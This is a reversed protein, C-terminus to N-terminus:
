KKFTKNYYDEGTLWYEFNSTGKSKKLKDGHADIIHQKEMDKAIEFLDESKYIDYRVKLEEKLWEVATM